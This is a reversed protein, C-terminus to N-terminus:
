DDAPLPQPLLPAQIQVQWNKGEWQQATKWFFTFEVVSGGPLGETPLDCFSLHLSDLDTTESRNTNAWGDASWVLTAKAAVIMLLAKGLPISRIQHRFGWIERCRPLPQRVYRQFAPEIRDFCIGDHYSRVLEIYEAHSWCLPMAAGTPKGRVM